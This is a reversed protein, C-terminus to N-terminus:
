FLLRWFYPSFFFWCLLQWILVVCISVAVYPTNINLNVARFELILIQHRWTYFLWPFSPCSLRRLPRARLQMQSSRRCKIYTIYMSDGCDLLWPCNDHPAATKSSNVHAELAWFNKRTPQLDYPLCISTSRITSCCYYKLGNIICTKEPEFISGKQGKQSKM